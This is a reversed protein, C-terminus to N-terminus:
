ESIGQEWTFVMIGNVLCDMWEDSSGYFWEYAGGQKKLDDVAKGWAFHVVAGTNLARCRAKWIPLLEEYM